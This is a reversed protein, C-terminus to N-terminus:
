KQSSPKVLCGVLPHSQNTIKAQKGRIPPSQSFSIVIQESESDADDRNSSQEIISINHDRAPKM